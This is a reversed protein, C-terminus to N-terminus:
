KILIIKNNIVNQYEPKISLIYIGNNYESIDISKVNEDKLILKGYSDLISIEYNKNEAVIWELNIIGKTPNPYIKFNKSEDQDNLGTAINVSVSATTSCGITTDTITVSYITNASPTFTPNSSTSTFGAPVSTWSYTYAPNTETVSAASSNLTVPTGATILNSSATATAIPGRVSCLDYRLANAPSGTVTKSWLITGISDIEYLYGATSICILINGNPLEQSAGNSNSTYTSSHRYAYTSPLM